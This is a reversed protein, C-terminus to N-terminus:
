REVQQLRRCGRKGSNQDKGDNFTGRFFYGPWKSPKSRRWQLRYSPHQLLLSSSQFCPIWSCITPQHKADLTPPPPPPPLTPSLPPPSPQFSLHPPSSLLPSPPPPLHLLPLVEPPSAHFVDKNSPFRHDQFNLNFVLSPCASESPSPHAPVWHLLKGLLARCIRWRQLPLRHDFFLGIQSLSAIPLDYHLPELKINFFLSYTTMSNM